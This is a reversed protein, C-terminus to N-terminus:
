EATHADVVRAGLKPNENRARVSMGGDRASVDRKLRYPRRHGKGERCQSEGRAYVRKGRAMPERGPCIGKERAGNARQRSFVGRGTCAPPTRPACRLASTGPASPPGGCRCSM